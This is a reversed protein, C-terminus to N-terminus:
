MLSLNNLCLEWITWWPWLAALPYYEELQRTSFMCIHKMMIDNEKMKKIRDNQATLNSNLLSVVEPIVTFQDTNEESPEEFLLILMKTFFFSNISWHVLLHFILQNKIHWEICYVYEREEIVFFFVLKFRWKFRM